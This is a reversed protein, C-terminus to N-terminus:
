ETTINTGGQDGLLTSRKNYYYREAEFGVSTNNKGDVFDIRSGTLIFFWVSPHKRTTMDGSSSVNFVQQQARLTLLDGTGDNRCRFYNFNSANDGGVLSNQVLEPIFKNNYYLGYTSTM